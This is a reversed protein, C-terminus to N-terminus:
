RYRLSFYSNFRTSCLEHLIVIRAPMKGISTAITRFNFKSYQLSGLVLFLTAAVKWTDYTIKNLATTLIRLFNINKQHAYTCM